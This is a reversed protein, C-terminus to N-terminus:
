PIIIVQDPGPIALGLKEKAMHGLVEPSQLHALEIKLSEQTIMLSKQKNAAKTIEYGTRVCQVGCWTKFFFAVIFVSLFLLSVAFIKPTFVEPRSKKNTRM